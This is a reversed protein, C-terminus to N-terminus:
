VIQNEDDNDSHGSYLRNLKWLENNLMAYSKSLM